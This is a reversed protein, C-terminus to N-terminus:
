HTFPLTSGTPADSTTAAKVQPGSSSSSGSGSSTLTPKEGSGPDAPDTPDTPDDPDEECSSPDFSDFTIEWEDDGMLEFGAKASATVSVTSGPVIDGEISYDVEDENGLLLGIEGAECSLQLPEVSASAEVLEEGPCDVAPHDLAFKFEQHTVADYHETQEEAYSHFFWSANNGGKSSADFVTNPAYDPKNKLGNHNGNDTNWGAAPPPPPPSGQNSGNWHYWQDVGEQVVEDYAEEDVVTKEDVQYWGAGPSELVWGTTETWADQPECPGEYSTGATGTTAVVGVMVILTAAISLYKKM